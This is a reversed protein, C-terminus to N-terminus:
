IKLFNIHKKSKKHVYMSSNSIVSGCECVVKEKIVEKNKQYYESM